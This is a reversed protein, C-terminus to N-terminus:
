KRQQAIYDIFQIKEYAPIQPDNLSKTYIEPILLQGYEETVYEHIWKSAHALQNTNNKHQEVQKKNTLIRNRLLKTIQEDNKEEDYENESEISSNSDSSESNSASENESDSEDYKKKMKNMKQYQEVLLHYKSKLHKTKNSRTYEISCIDCPIRDNPDLREKKYNKNRSM